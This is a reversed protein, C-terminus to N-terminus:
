VKGGRGNESEGNRRGDEKARRLKTVFASAPPPAPQRRDGKARGLRLRRRSGVGGARHFAESNGIEGPHLSEATRSWRPRRGQKTNGTCRAGHGTCGEKYELVGYNLYELLEEKWEEMM